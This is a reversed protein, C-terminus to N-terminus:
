QKEFLPKEYIRYRKYVKGNIRELGKNMMENHELIWSAEAGKMKREGVRNIIAAYFCAEIGLKRYEQNVGLALVRVRDIKKM